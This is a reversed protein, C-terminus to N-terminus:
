GSFIWRSCMHYMYVPTGNTQQGPMVVYLPVRLTEDYVAGAKAHIGHSGGFDGHDSLFIIATNSSPNAYNTNSFGTGLVTSLVVGINSDVLSLLYYYWNLFDAYQSAGLVPAHGARSDRMWTQMPM